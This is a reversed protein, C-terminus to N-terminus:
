KRKQPADLAEIIPRLKLLIELQAYRVTAKNKDGNVAEAAEKRLNEIVADLSSLAVYNRYASNEQLVRNVSLRSKVLGKRPRMYTRGAQKDDNAHEWRARKRLNEVIAHVVANLCEYRQLVPLKPISSGRRGPHHLRKRPKKPSYRPQAPTYQQWDPSKKM